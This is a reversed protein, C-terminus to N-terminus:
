FIDIERNDEADYFLNRINNALHEYPSNIILERARGEVSSYIVPLINILKDAHQFPLDAGYSKIISADFVGLRTLYWTATLLSCPFKGHNKIYREYSRRLHANTIAGLLKEASAVVDAEFAWYDPPVGENELFELIDDSTLKHNTPNYNDILIVTSAEFAWADRVKKLYELSQTHTDDIDQDTYIHFYEVSYRKEGKVSKGQQLVSSMM